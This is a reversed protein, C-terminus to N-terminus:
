LETYNSELSTVEIFMSIIKMLENDLDCHKNEFGEFMAKYTDGSYRSDVIESVTQYVDSLKARCRLLAKTKESVQIGAINTECEDNIKITQSM